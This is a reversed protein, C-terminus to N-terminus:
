CYLFFSPISVKFLQFNVSCDDDEVAPPILWLIPGQQQQLTIDVEKNRTKRNSIKTM